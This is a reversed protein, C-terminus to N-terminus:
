LTVLFGCLVLDRMETSPFPLETGRTLDGAQVCRTSGDGQEALCTGGVVHGKWCM